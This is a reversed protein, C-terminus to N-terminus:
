KRRFVLVSRRPFPGVAEKLFVEYRSGYKKTEIKKELRKRTSEVVQPPFTLIQPTGVVRGPLQPQAITKQYAFTKKGGDVFPSNQEGVPTVPPEYPMNKDEGAALKRDLDLYEKPWQATDLLLAPDKREYVITDTVGEVNDLNSIPKETPGRPAFGTNDPLEFDSKAPVIIQELNCGQPTMFGVAMLFDKLDYTPIGM